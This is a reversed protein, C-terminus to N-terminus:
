EKEVLKPQISPAVQNHYAIILNVGDDKTEGSKEDEQFVTEKVQSEWSDAFMDSVQEMPLDQKSEIKQRYNGELASHNSKGLLLSGTPPIKIGDIYRYRYQLPCRLYMKIQSVSLHPKEM